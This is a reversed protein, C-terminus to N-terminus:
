LEIVCAKLIDELAQNAREGQGDIRCYYTMNMDLRYRIDESFEVLMRPTFRADKDLITIMPLGHTSVVEKIYKESIYRSFEM